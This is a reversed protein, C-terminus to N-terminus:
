PGLDDRNAIALLAAGIAADVSPFIVSALPMQKHIGEVVAACLSSERSLLSGSLVLPFPEGSDLLGAAKAAASASTLLGAAAEAVLKRAVADGAGAAELALPALAAIAAWGEQGYAWGMLAATDGLGLHRAVAGSLATAPGRGDAARAVAALTRQAIDYGSGADLFLPGWGASRASKGSRSRAFAITGTGAVLVCGCCRGWTGSSLAAVSDNNVVIDASIALANRM